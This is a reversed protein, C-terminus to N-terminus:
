HGCFPKNLTKKWANRGRLQYYVFMACHNFMPQHISDYTDNGLFLSRNLETIIAMDNDEVDVPTQMIVYVDNILSSTILHKNLAQYDFGFANFYEFIDVLSDKKVRYIQINHSDFLNDIDEALDMDDMYDMGGFANAFAYDGGDILMNTTDGIQYIYKLVRWGVYTHDQQLNTFVENGDMDNLSAVYDNIVENTVNTLNDKVFNKAYTIMSDQTNSM